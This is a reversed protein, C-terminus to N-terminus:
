TYIIILKLASITIANHNNDNKSNNNNENNSTSQQRYNSYKKVKTQM